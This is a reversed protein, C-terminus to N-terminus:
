NKATEEAKDAEETEEAKKKEKMRAAAEKGKEKRKERKENRKEIVEVNYRCKYHQAPRSKWTLNDNLVYENATGNKYVTVLKKEELLTIARSVTRESVKFEEQLRKYPCVISNYGNSKRSFYLFIAAALGNEAATQELTQTMKYNFQGFNRFWSKEREAYMRKREKIAGEITLYQIASHLKQKTEMGAEDLRKVYEKFEKTKAWSTKEGTDEVIKRWYEDEPVGLASIQDLINQHKRVAAEICGIEDSIFEDAEKYKAEEKTMTNEKSSEMGKELREVLSQTHGVAAICGTLQWIQKGPWLPGGASRIRYKRGGPFQKQVKPSKMLSESRIGCFVPQWGGYETM